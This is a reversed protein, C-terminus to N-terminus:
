FNLANGHPRCLFFMGPQRITFNNEFFELECDVLTVSPRVSLNNVMPIGREAYYRATFFRSSQAQPSLFSNSGLRRRLLFYQFTIIDHHLQDEIMGVSSIDLSIVLSHVVRNLSHSIKCPLPAFM